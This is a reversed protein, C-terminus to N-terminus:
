SCSQLDLALRFGTYNDNSPYDNASERCVDEASFNWGGGMAIDKDLVADDIWEEVNGSMDYIGIGNPKKTGVEHTTGGSNERYWAVEDVDNSGAYKYANTGYAADCWERYTPLRYNRKTKENLHSIFEKVKFLSVSEVPHNPSKFYSPNYGMVKFWQEQTVEYKGIFFGSVYVMEIGDPNYVDGMKFQNAM